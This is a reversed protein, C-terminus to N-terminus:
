EDKLVKLFKGIRVWKSDKLTKHKLSLDNNEKCLSALIEELHFKYFRMREQEMLGKNDPDSSFGTLDYRAVTLYLHRYHIRGSLLHRNYFVWDALMRYSLDYQQEAFLDARFFTSQHNLTRDLMNFGELKDPMRRYTETGDAQVMITDGYLLEEQPSLTVFRELVKPNALLDGSNLFLFYAGTARDVGKNMADYIGEDPESLWYSWSEANEELFEKTGDESGGDIIIHEIQPYTQGWVSQATKKLGALDNYCITIVSILM